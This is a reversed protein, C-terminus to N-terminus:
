TLESSRIFLNRIATKGPRHSPAEPFSIQIELENLAKTFVKSGYERGNDSHFITLRQNNSLAFFLAQLVLSVSYNMMVSIGTIKRTFIDILLSIKYHFM